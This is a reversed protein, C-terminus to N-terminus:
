PEFDDYRKSLDLTKEEGVAPEDLYNRGFVKIFDEKPYLYMFRKQYEKRLMLMLEKSRKGFHIENHCDRCICVVM